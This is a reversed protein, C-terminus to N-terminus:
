PKRGEGRKWRRFARWGMGRLAAIEQAQTRAAEQAQALRASVEELQARLRDKEEQAAELMLASAKYTALEELAARYRDLIELLIPDGGGQVEERGERPSLRKRIEPDAVLAAKSIRWEPGFKGEVKEAQLRGDRIYGRITMPHLGTFRAVQNITYTERDEGEM